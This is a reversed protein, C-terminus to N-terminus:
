TYNHKSTSNRNWYFSMSLKTKIGLTNHIEIWSHNENSKYPHSQSTRQSLLGVM